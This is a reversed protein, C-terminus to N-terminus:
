GEVLKGGDVEADGDSKVEDVGRMWNLDGGDGKVM